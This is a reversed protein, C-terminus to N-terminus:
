PKIIQYWWTLAVCWTQWEVYVSSYMTSSSSKLPSLDKRQIQRDTVITALNLKMMSALSCFTEGQTGSAKALGSLDFIIISVEKFNMIYYQSFKDENCILKIGKGVEQCFLSKKFNNCRHCNNRTYRLIQSFRCPQFLVPNFLSANSSHKAPALQIYSNVNTGFPCITHPLLVPYHKSAEGEVVHETWGTFLFQMHM